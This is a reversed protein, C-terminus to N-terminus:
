NMMKTFFNTMEGLNSWSAFFGTGIFYYLINFLFNVDDCLQCFFPDYYAVILIHMFVSFVFLISHFTLSVVSIENLCIVRHFFLNNTFWSNMFVTKWFCLLFGLVNFVMLIIM